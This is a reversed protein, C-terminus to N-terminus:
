RDNWGCNNTKISNSVDELPKGAQFLTTIHKWLLWYFVGVGFVTVTFNRFTFWYHVTSHVNVILFWAFPLLSVLICAWIACPVSQRKLCSIVLAAIVGVVIVVVSGIRMLRKPMFLMVNKDLGSFRDATASTGDAGTWLFIHSFATAVVNEGTVLSAIVWKSVWLGAYGILWVLSLGLLSVAAKVFGMGDILEHKALLLSLMPFAWTVLPTNLFDFFATAAGFCFFALLYGHQKSSIWKSSIVLMGVLAVVFSFLLTPSLAVTIVVAYAMAVAFVIACFIGALKFVRCCAAVFLVSLLVLLVIRIGRIDFFVLLPKLLVLYGHWYWAYEENAPKDLGLAFDAVADVDVADYRACRMASQLVDGGAHWATNFAVATSFNDCKSKEVDILALPWDGEASLVESSAKINESIAAQPIAYVAVMSLMFLCFCVLWAGLLAAIPNVTHAGESDGFLM